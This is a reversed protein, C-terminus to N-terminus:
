GTVRTSELFKDLDVQAYRIVGGIKYYPIIHRKTSRWTDLTKKSVGIYEAAKDTALQPKTPDNIIQQIATM